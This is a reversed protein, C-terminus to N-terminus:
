SEGPTDLAFVDGDKETGDYIPSHATLYDQVSRDRAEHLFQAAAAPDNKVELQYLAAGIAGLLDACLAQYNFTTKPM